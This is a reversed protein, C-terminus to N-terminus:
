GVASISTPPFAPISLAGPLHTSPQASIFPSARGQPRPVGAWQSNGVAFSNKEQGKTPSDLVWNFITMPPPWHSDTPRDMELGELIDRTTITVFEGMARCLERVSEALLCVEQSIPLYVKEAWYQLCRCYAETLLKPRQSCMKTSWGRQYFAGWNLCKPAPPASYSQDPSVRSWIEPICFSTCIKRAFKCLDTIGPIAKLEEWWAPTGLQDAQLDLWLELDKIPLKVSSEWNEM